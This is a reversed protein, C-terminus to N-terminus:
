KFFGAKIAAPVAMILGFLCLTWLGYNMGQEHVQLWQVIYSEKNGIKIQASIFYRLVLPIVSFVLVCFQSFYFTKVLAIGKPSLERLTGNSELINGIVLSVILLVFVSVFIIFFLKTNM